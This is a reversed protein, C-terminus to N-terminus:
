AKDRQAIAATALRDQSVARIAILVAGPGAAALATAEAVSGTGFREAIRLSCSATPLGALAARPVPIVPLGLRAALAVLEPWAAKDELTALASLGAAGGAQTLASELSALTARERLGLGAVKM